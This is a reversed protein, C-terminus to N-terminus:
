EKKKKKRRKVPVVGPFLIWGDGVDLFMDGLEGRSLTVKGSMFPAVHMLNNLPAAYEGSVAAVKAPLSTSFQAKGNKAWLQLKGEISPMLRVIVETRALGALCLSCEKIAEALKRGDFVASKNRAESRLKEVVAFPFDKQAKVPSPMVYTAAKGSKLVTQRPGIFLRDGVTVVKALPLPVAVHGAKVKPAELVAVTGQSFAVAEGKGTLMVCCLEARSSDNFAVDSLYVLKETVSHTVKIETADKVGPVKFHEGHAIATKTKRGRTLFVIEKDVVYVKVNATGRCLAAVSDIVRRDVGVLKLVGAAPVRGRSQVVGFTCAVAYGDNIALHVFEAGVFQGVSPFKTVAEIMAVFDRGTFLCKSIM